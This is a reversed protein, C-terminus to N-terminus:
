HDPLKEEVSQVKGRLRGFVNKRDDVKISTSVRDSLSVMECHCRKILDFVDNTEGEVITGMSTLQYDLGSDRVIRIIHAVWVSLHSDGKDLPVISFEALM